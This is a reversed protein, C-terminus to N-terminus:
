GTVSQHLSARARKVKELTDASRATWIFPKPGAVYAEIAATLKDVSTFVGRRLRKTTPDRFFREVMGKLLLNFTYRAVSAGYPDAYV